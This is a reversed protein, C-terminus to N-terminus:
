HTTIKTLFSDFWTTWEGRVGFGHPWGDLVHEEVQVGAERAADANAIFQRYFPDETGYTYFTPPIDGDQLDNVNNNSVSLRGYFSYIMGIACVDASVQDLEDPVYGNDLVSGNVLGDFHLAEDGCLIGGASFGVSAINEPAIGYEDAHSRVYRIARALDLSGEEMTYPRVRYNVVFSQWGLESLREAVPAGENPSRFMFAGGPCVMVAGKIEVGDPVPYWVMNPRFDPDDQYNGNNVTYNTESPMNNEPCLYTRLQVEEESGEGNGSNATTFRRATGYLTGSALTVFARVYYITGPTLEMMYCVFSESPGDAEAHFDDVTPGSSTSWCIGLAIVNELNGSIRGGSIASTSTIDTTVITEVTVMNEWENEDTNNCATAANVAFLLIIFHFIKKMLQNDSLAQIYPNEAKPHFMTKAGESLAPFMNGNRRLFGNVLM